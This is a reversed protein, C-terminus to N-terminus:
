TREEGALELWHECLDVVVTDPRPDADEPWLERRLFRVRYVVVPPRDTRGYAMEEPNPMPGVVQVIEGVHGRTYFPSRVHGPPDWRRVRVRAGPAFRARVATAPGTGSM